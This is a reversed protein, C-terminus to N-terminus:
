YSLHWKWRRMGPNVGTWSNSLSDLNSITVSSVSVLFNGGEYSCDVPTVWSYLNYRCSQLLWTALWSSRPWARTLKGMNWSRSWSPL